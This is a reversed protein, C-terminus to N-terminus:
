LSETLYEELPNDCGDFLLRNDLLCFVFVLSFVSSLLWVHGARLKEWVIMRESIGNCADIIHMDVLRITLGATLKLQRSKWDVM